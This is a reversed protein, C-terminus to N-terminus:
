IGKGETKLWNMHKSLGDLDPFIGLENIGYLNLEDIIESKAHSKIIIKKLQQGSFPEGIDGFGIPESPNPHYTFRGSQNIIRSAISRPIYQKIKKELTLRKKKM